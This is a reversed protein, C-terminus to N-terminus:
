YRHVMQSPQPTALHQSVGFISQVRSSPHIRCKKPRLLIEIRPSAQGTWRLRPRAIYMSLGEDYVTRIDFVWRNWFSNSLLLLQQLAAHIWTSCIIGVASEWLYCGIEEDHNTFWGQDWCWCIHLIHERGRRLSHFQRSTVWFLQFGFDDLDDEKKEKRLKRVRHSPSPKM